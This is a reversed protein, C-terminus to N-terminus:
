ALRVSAVVFQSSVKQLITGSGVDAADGQGAAAAIGALATAASGGDPAESALSRLRQEAEPGGLRGARTEAVIRELDSRLRVVQSLACDHYM